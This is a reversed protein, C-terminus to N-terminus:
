IEFIGRRRKISSANSTRESKGRASAPKRHSTMHGGLARSCSFTVGCVRCSYGGHSNGGEVLERLLPDLTFSEPHDQQTTGIGGSFNYPLPVVPNSGDDERLFHAISKVGREHPERNLLAQSNCMKQIDHCSSVNSRLGSDEFSARAKEDGKVRGRKRVVESSNHRGCGGLYRVEPSRIGLSDRSGLGQLTPWSVAAKQPSLPSGHTSMM